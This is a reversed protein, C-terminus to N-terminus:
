SSKCVIELTASWQDDSDIELPTGDPNALTFELYGVKDEIPMFYKIQFFESKEWYQAPAAADYRVKALAYSAITNSPQNPAMNSSVM